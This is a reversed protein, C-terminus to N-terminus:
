LELWIRTFVGQAGAFGQLSYHIVQIMCLLICQMSLRLDHDFRSISEVHYILQNGIEM